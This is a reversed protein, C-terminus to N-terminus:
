RRRRPMFVDPAYHPRPVFPSQYFVRPDTERLFRRWYPTQAARERFRTGFNDTHRYEPGYEDNRRLALAHHFGLGYRPHCSRPRVFARRRLYHKKM